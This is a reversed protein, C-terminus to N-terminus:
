HRVTRSVEAGFVYHRFTKPGFHGYVKSPCTVCLVHSVTLTVLDFTLTVLDLSPTACFISNYASFTM